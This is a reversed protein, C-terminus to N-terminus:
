GEGAAAGEAPGRGYDDEHRVVDDIEPTSVEVVRVPGNPASLRHRAGAPLHVTEGPELTLTAWAGARELEVQLTGDLVLLTEV